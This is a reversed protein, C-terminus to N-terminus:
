AGNTSTRFSAPAAFHIDALAACLRDFAAMEGPCTIRLANSLAGNSPFRRVAIGSQRLGEWVRRAGQFRALVFNAQSPVVSSGWSELLTTLETREARVRAVFAQMRREGSELGRTALALSLGSTPYPSGAARLWDMVAASGLAYGVRLGALGWAKSFTRVAIANPLDLVTGTLDDDAFETYALDVLLLARPAATSLQQLDAATAVAGTPNNPTIVAIAGTAPSATTAVRETPYPGDLWPVTRVEAGALSAYRELMEFTPVPLIFERGPELTARCARDLADDGGATVLVRQPELSFREALKEELERSSPYERLLGPGLGAMVALLEADCVAGENGDLRLDISAPREPIAYPAVGALAAVPRLSVEGLSCAEKANANRQKM